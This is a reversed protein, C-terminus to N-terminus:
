ARTGQQPCQNEGQGPVAGCKFLFAAALGQKIATVAQAVETNNLILAM